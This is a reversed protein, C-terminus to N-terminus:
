PQFLINSPPLLLHHFLSRISPTSSLLAKLGVLYGEGIGICGAPLVSSHIQSFNIRNYLVAAGVFVCDCNVVHLTYQSIEHQVVSKSKILNARM